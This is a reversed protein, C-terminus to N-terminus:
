PSDKIWRGGSVIFGDPHFKEGVFTYPDGVGIGRKNYVATQGNVYGLAEEGILFFDEVVDGEQLVHQYVM